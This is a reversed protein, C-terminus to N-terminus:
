LEKKDWNYIQVCKLIYSQIFPMFRKDYKNKEIYEYVIEILESKDM